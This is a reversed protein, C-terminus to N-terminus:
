MGALLFPHIIVLNPLRAEAITGSTIDSAAHTHATPTRADSLRADNGQCATGATTGYTVSTTGSAVELGSGVIIAGKQTTTAVPMSSRNISFFSAAGNAKILATTDAGNTIELMTFEAPFEPPGDAKAIYAPGVFITGFADARAVRADLAAQLGTTDAIAHTHASPAFTSPKGTIDDWSGAGAVQETWASLDAGLRWTRGTATVFVLMGQERRPAPIADREANSAVTRYGGLGYAAAHTPHVDATDLPVVPAVVNTGKIEAM